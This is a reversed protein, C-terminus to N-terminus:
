APIPSELRKIENLLGPDISDYFSVGIIHGEPFRHLWRVEARFRTRGGSPLVVTWDTSHGKQIGTEFSFDTSRFKAGGESIDILEASIATGRHDLEANWPLSVELRSAVRRNSGTSNKDLM